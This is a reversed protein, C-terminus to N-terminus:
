PGHCPSRVLVNEVDLAESERDGSRVGAGNVTHVM